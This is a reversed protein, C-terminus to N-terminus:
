EKRKPARQVPLKDFMVGQSSIDLLGDRKVKNLEKIRRAASAKLKRSHVRVPKTQHVLGPILVPPEDRERLWFQGIDYYTGAPVGYKCWSAIACGGCSRDHMRRYAPLQWDVEHPVRVKKNRILGHDTEVDMYTVKCKTYPAKRCLKLSWLWIVDGYEVATLQYKAQLYKALEIGLKEVAEFRIQLSGFIVIMMTSLYVRLHHFDVPASLENHPILGTASLFYSLMSSMKMKFGMFGRYGNRGIIRDYLILEDVTGKFINRPDGDWDELLVLSNQFWFEGIQDFRWSIYGYLILGIEWPNSKMVQAPDFLWRENKWLRILQKFADSSVVTGRMYLCAFFLFLALQLPKSAISKPVLNQPLDIGPRDYPYQGRHFLDLMPEFAEQARARDIKGVEM